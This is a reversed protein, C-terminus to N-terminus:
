GAAVLRKPENTNDFSGYDLARRIAKRGQNIQSGPMALPPPGGSGPVAAANEIRRWCM